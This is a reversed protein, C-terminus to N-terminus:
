DVIESQKKSDRRKQRVCARKKSKRCHDSKIEEPVPRIEKLDTEEHDKNKNCKKIVHAMKRLERDEFRTM